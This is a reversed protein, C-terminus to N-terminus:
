AYGEVLDENMDYGMPEIFKVRLVVAEMCTFDTEVIFCLEDKHKEVLTPPIRYRKKMEIQFYKM